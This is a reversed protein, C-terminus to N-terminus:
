VYKWIFGGSSGNINRCCAGIGSIHCKTEEAAKTMTPFEQILTGDLQFQGVARGSKSQKQGGVEMIREGSVMSAIKGRTFGTAASAEKLSAWEATVNGDEDYETVPRSQSYRVNDAFSLWELNQEDNNGRNEDKHNVVSDPSPPPGHFAECIIRHVLMTGCDLTTYYYGTRYLHGFSVHGTKHRLRGKSSAFINGFSRWEECELNPVHYNWKYGGSTHFDGRCAMTIANRKCGISTAADTASPWIRILDGKLTLQEVPRKRGEMKGFTRNRANESRTAFRLNVLASNTKDRDIHDVVMGEPRAGDFTEKVLVHHYISKARGDSSEFRAVLYGAGPNRSMFRGAKVSWVGGGRTVCYRGEKLGFHSAVPVLEDLSM